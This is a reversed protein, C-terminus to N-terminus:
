LNDNHEQVYKLVAAQERNMADYDIDFFEALLREIDVRVPSPFERDPLYKCFFWKKEHNCWEIFEGIAQSKDKVEIVKDLNPTDPYGIPKNMIILM